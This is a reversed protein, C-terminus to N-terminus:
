GRRPRPPRFRCDAGRGAPSSSAPCPPSTRPVIIRNCPSSSARRGLLYAVAEARAHLAHARWRRRWGCRWRGGPTSGASAALISGACQQMNSSCHAARFGSGAHQWCPQRWAPGLRSAGSTPPLVLRRSATPQVPVAAGKCLAEQVHQLSWGRHWLAATGRQRQCGAAARTALQRRRAQLGAPERQRVGATLEGASQGAAQWLAGAQVRMRQLSRLHRQERQQGSGGSSALRISPPGQELLDM